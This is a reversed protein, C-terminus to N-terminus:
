MVRLSRKEWRKIRWRVGIAYALYYGLVIAGAGLSRAVGFADLFSDGGSGVATLGRWFGYLMRASVLLTIALVLWRNPTYHLERPTAEWRTLLWGIVGLVCGIAVGTAASVFASAVWFNTVASAALFFLVSIIMGAVNLTALFPRALRRASGTRYRQLLILPMVAIVLLPLILLLALLLLPM